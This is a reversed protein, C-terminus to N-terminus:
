KKKNLIKYFANVAEVPGKKFNWIGSCVALLDCDTELIKKCNKINIGGIAACPLSFNKKFCNINKTTAIYKIKKTKTNFFSGFSIYTAKYNIAKKAFKKSNHCTIGLLKKKKFITNIKKRSLDGQGM